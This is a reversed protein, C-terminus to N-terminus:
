TLFSMKLAGWRRTKDSWNFGNQLLPLLIADFGLGASKKHTM